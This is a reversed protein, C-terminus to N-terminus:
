HATTIPEPATLRKRNAAGAVSLAGAHPRSHLGQQIQKAPAQLLVRSSASNADRSLTASSSFTRGQAASRRRRRRNRISARVSAAARRFGGPLGLRSRQTSQFASFCRRCGKVLRIQRHNDSLPGHRASRMQITVRRQAGAVIEVQQHAPGIQSAGFSQECIM